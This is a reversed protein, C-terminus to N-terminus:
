EIKKIVFVIDGDPAQVTVKDKVKAGLLAKGFPSEASIKGAQSNAEASGVLHYVETDRTGKETVTVKAGLQVRDRNGDDEIIKATRVIQSLRAIEAEIYGQENKADHYELNETLEGGEELAQRLREAIQPRRVQEFHELRQELETYGEQTLYQPQTM